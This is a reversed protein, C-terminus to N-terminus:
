VNKAADARLREANDSLLKEFMEPPVDDLGLAAIKNRIRQWLRDLKKLQKEKKADEIKQLQSQMKALKERLEQEKQEETKRPKKTATEADSNSAFNAKQAASGAQHQNQM